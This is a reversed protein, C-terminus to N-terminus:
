RPVSSVAWVSCASRLQGPRSPLGGSELGSLPPSSVRSIRYMATQHPQVLVTFAGTTVTLQEPWLDKLLYAPVGPM